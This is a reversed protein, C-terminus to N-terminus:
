NKAGTKRPTAPAKAKAAKSKAPTQRRTKPAAKAPAKAAPAARGTASDQARAVALLADFSAQMAAAYNAPDPLSERDALVTLMVRGNYSTITHFIGLGDTNLGMGFSKVLACGAFYMASQPGPVNTVVTNSQPAITDALGMSLALRTGAATLGAPMAGSLEMINRAGLANTMAKSRGTEGQIFALREGADVIDTGLSAIMMSVQNGGSGRESDDRISIPVSARLSRKPLDDVSKLYGRMAGGVVALMVDNVTCGPFAARIAKIDSLAFERGDFVRHPSIVGNFRTRPALGVSEMAPRYTRAYDFLRKPVPWLNQMRRLGQVPNILNNINAKFLLHLAQPAEEGAWDRDFQRPTMKADEDHLALTLDLGSQGDIAAHHLKHLVAFSGPPVGDVRDLGEIVTFEWLPRNMDLPRAYIRAALICLQRWDGPHPLAIHRVHYELDFNKDEIWYPHDLDLPVRVLKQRFIRAGDLRGEIYHLIDKFGIKGNPRTEPTYILLQGIHMPTRASEGYAFMADLPSLQEM